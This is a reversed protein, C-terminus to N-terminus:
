PRASPLTATLQAPILGRQERDLQYILRHNEAVQELVRWQGPGYPAVLRRVPSPILALYRHWLSGGTRIDLGLPTADKSWLGLRDFLCTEIRLRSAIGSAVSWCGFGAGWQGFHIASDHLEAVLTDGSWKLTAAQRSPVQTAPPLSADPALFRIM